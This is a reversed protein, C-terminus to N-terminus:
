SHTHREKRERHEVGSFRWMAVDMPLVEVYRCWLKLYAIGGMQRPDIYSWVEM